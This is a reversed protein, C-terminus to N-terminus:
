NRCITHVFSTKISLNNTLIHIKRRRERQFSAAIIGYEGRWAAADKIKFEACASGTWTLVWQIEMQNWLAKLSWMLWKLWDPKQTMKLRFGIDIKCKFIFSIGNLSAIHPCLQPSKLKTLHQSTHSINQNRSHLRLFLCKFVAQPIESPRLDWLCRWIKTNQLRDRSILEFM